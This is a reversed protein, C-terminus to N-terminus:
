KIKSRLLIKTGKGRHSEIVLEAGIMGSRTKMNMLGNGLAKETTDFGKGNDTVAVKLIGNEDKIEIAANTCESYKVLNNVAEKIILYIHQRYEMSLYSQKLRDDIEFTYDINKAEFLQAAFRKIRLLLEEMSDNGPNVSWIIDDMKEMLLISNEKIENVMQRSQQKDDEHIAVESLISISSLTSGIDDHLDSSIRSRLKEVKMLQRIRYKYIFYIIGMIIFLCLLLFWTQKWFPTKITFSITAPVLSSVGDKNIAKVKFTYSGPQLQYSVFNRESVESWEKDQGELYYTYRIGEKKLDVGAFEFAVINSDHTLQLSHSVTLYPIFGSDTKNNITVKIFYIPPHTTDPLDKEPFYQLLGEDTGAWVNDNDILLVNTSKETGKNTLVPKTIVPKDYDSNKLINIGKNTALYINNENDVSISKVWNASLGKSSNIHWHRNDKVSFIYIGNTRTGFIINGNKDSASSRIRLDPFGTKSSFEKLYVPKLGNLHYKVIGYSRYGLWLDKNDDIYIADIFDLMYYPLVIKHLSDNQVVYLNGESTGLWIRGESDEFARSALLDFKKRIFNSKLEIIGAATGALLQNSKTKLMWSTYGIKKNNIIKFIDIGNKTKKAIGEYTGMWLENDKDTGLVIIMSNLPSKTLDYFKFYEHTLSSLGKTSLFWTIGSNDHYIFEPPHPLGNQEDYSYIENNVIKYAKDSGVWVENAPTVAITSILKNKLYVQGYNNNILANLNNYMYLGKNTGVWIKDDQLVIKTISHDDLLPIFKAPKKHQMFCYFLGKEYGILLNGNKLKILSRINKAPLINQSDFPTFRKKDFWLLTGDTAVIYNNESYQLLHFVTNHTSSFYGTDPLYNTFKGNSFSYLGNYYTLIWITGNEDKYFNNIYLQGTQADIEPQYFHTGDYWKLGFPTGIWLLGRDDKIVSTIQQDILEEKATFNKFPLIQAIASFPLLLILYLFFRLMRNDLYNKFRLFHLMVAKAEM